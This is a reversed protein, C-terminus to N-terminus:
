EFRISDIIAEMEQGDSGYRVAGVVLRTGDVDLVIVRQEADPGWSVEGDSIWQLTGSGVCADDAPGSFTLEFTRGPIGGISDDTVPGAAFGPLSTLANVLDDVSDGLAPTVITPPCPDSYTNSVIEFTLIDSYGSESPKWIRVIKDGTGWVDWSDTITFEFQVPFFAGVSYTGPDMNGTGLAQTTPVPSAEPSPAPGGVNPAILLQYGILAVVVVAAAALGITVIKNM